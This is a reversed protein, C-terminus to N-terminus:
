REEAPQVRGAEGWAQALLRGLAERVDDLSRQHRRAGARAAARAAEPDAALRELAAALAEPDRPPVLLGRGEGLLERMMGRPSGVCVLGFAMAESVVKPWGESDSVLVLVDSGEYRDFVASPALGGTFSVRDQLGERSVQAELREREPGEGVIVAAFGISRAALRALASILVDVNKSAVLRSVSLIRLPGDARPRGSARRARAVEAATMASAFFPVVHADPGPREAYALVPGTWWGRRALIRRQLRVTWPERPHGGWEGAFKAVLRRSCLPALLAGLLGLNGPCRVHVADADRMAHLLQGTLIPLALVQLTKRTWSEGGTEVVRHIRVNPRTFPLCDAPPPARRCPAAITLTGFLDAWVELERAYPAYAHLQGAHRYHV